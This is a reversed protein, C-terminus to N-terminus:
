ADLTITQGNVVVELPGSTRRVIVPLSADSTTDELHGRIVVEVTRGFASAEAEACGAQRAAHIALDRATEAFRADHPLSVNLEFHTANM